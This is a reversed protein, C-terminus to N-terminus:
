DQAPDKWLSLLPGAIGAVPDSKPFPLNAIRAIM